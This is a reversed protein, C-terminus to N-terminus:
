KEGGQPWIKALKEDTIKEWKGENYGEIQINKQVGFRENIMLIQRKAESLDSCYAYIKNDKMLRIM